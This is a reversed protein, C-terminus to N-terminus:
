AKLGLRADADSELSESASNNFLDSADHDHDSTVEEVVDEPKESTEGLIEDLSLGLEPLESAMTTLEGESVM